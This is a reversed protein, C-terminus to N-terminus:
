PELLPFKTCVAFPEGNFISTLAVAPLPLYPKELWFVMNVVAVVIKFAQGSHSTMAIRMMRRCSGGVMTETTWNRKAKRVKTDGVPPIVIALIGESLSTSMPALPVGDKWVMTKRSM